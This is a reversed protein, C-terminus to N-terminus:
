ITTLNILEADSLAKPYYQLDKTNGFFYNRIRGEIFGINSLNNAFPTTITLDSVVEVGNFYGLLKGNKYALAYKNINKINDGITYYNSITVGNNVFFFGVRNYRTDLLISVRNNQTGDSISIEKSITGLGTDEALTGGEFYLVGEESNIEPTANICTEQNRTTQSGNSPIYSSAFPLEEVQVFTQYAITGVTVGAWNQTSSTSFYTKLSAYISSVAATFTIEAKVWGDSLSTINYSDISPDSSVVVNNVNDWVVSTSGSLAHIQFHIYPANDCKVYGQQTYTNGITVASPLRCYMQNYQSQTAEYKIVNSTPSLYFLGVGGDSLTGRQGSWYTSNYNQSDTVLNTSQPELLFAEAGTSYDLRPTNTATIYEKVSVNDLNYTNGNFGYIRLEIGGNATAQFTQTGNAFANGSFTSGGFIVICGDTGVRNSIDFSLNYTKGTVLGINQSIFNQASGDTYALGNSVSWSSGLTWDTSGDEFDGNTVKEEGIENTSQILGQADVYTAESGRAFTFQEAITDFDLTFTPDTPTPYTLEALEQDSLAEKWVALAKTKGFLKSGGNGDDFSFENLTDVAFSIGNNDTVVETGDIWLAFDNEKYKLVYKHSITTDIAYNGNFQNGGEVKVNFSITTPSNSYISVRNTATGDSLSIFKYNDGIFV